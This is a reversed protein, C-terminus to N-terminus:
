NCSGGSVREIDLTSSKPAFACFGILFRRKIEGRARPNDPSGIGSLLGV